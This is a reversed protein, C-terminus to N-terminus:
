RWISIDPDSPQNQPHINPHVPGRPTAGSRIGLASAVPMAGNSIPLVFVRLDPRLTKAKQRDPHHISGLSPKPGNFAFPRRAPTARREENILQIQSSELGAHRGIQSSGANGAPACSEAAPSSQAAEACASRRSHHFRSQATAFVRQLEPVPGSLASRWHEM